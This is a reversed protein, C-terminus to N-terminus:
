LTWSTSLCLRRLTPQGPGYGLSKQLEGFLSAGCGGQHVRVETLAGTDVCCLHAEQHDSLVQQTGGAQAWQWAM